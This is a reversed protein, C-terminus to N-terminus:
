SGRRRLNLARVREREIEIKRVETLPVTEMVKPPKRKLKAPFLANADRQGLEYICKEHSDDSLTNGRINRFQQQQQQTPQSRPPYKYASRFLCVIKSSPPM